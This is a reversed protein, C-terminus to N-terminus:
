EVSSFLLLLLLLLLLVIFSALTFSHRGKSQNWEIEIQNSKIQNSAESLIPLSLATFQSFYSVLVTDTYKREPKIKKKSCVLCNRRKLKRNKKIMM